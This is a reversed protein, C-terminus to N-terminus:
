THQKSLQMEQCYQPYDLSAVQQNIDSPTLASLPLAILISTSKEPSTISDGKAPLQLFRHIKIM